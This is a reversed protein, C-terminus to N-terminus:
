CVKESRPSTPYLYPTLEKKTLILDGQQNFQQQQQQQQQQWQSPVSPISYQPQNSFPHSNSGYAVAPIPADGAMQMQQNYQAPQHQRQQLQQQSDNPNGTLGTMGPVSAIVKNSISSPSYIPDPYM